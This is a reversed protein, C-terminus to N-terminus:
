WYYFGVASLVATVAFIGVATLTDSIMSMGM